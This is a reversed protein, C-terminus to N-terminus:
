TGNDLFHSESMVKAEVQLLLEELLTTVEQSQTEQEMLVSITEDSLASVDKEKLGKEKCLVRYSEELNNRKEKNFSMNDKELSENKLKLADLEAKLKEMENIETMDMLRREDKEFKEKEGNLSEKLAYNSSMAMGFTANEDAPVAVLSLEAFNIGIAKLSGDEEKMLDKAYAGVSVSNIRGDSVMQKIQEDMIQAEFKLKRENNDFFSNIVRGKISAIENKHDVLLPRNILSHSAKELEEAVYKTGNHTTTESIATGKIVFIENDQKFEVIPTSFEILHWDRKQM